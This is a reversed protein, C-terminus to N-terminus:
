ANKNIETKCNLCFNRHVCLGSGCETCTWRKEENMMFEELGYKQIYDLNEIM